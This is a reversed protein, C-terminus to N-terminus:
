AIKDPPSHSGDLTMINATEKYVNRGHLSDKSNQISEHTLQKPSLAPSQM